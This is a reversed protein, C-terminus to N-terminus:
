RVTITLVFSRQEPPCLLAEGCLRRSASIRAMGAQRATFAVQVTGCGVGPPCTGPPAATKSPEGNQAVVDPDSSGEIQWYTSHLVLQFVEGPAAEITSGNSAEDVTRAGPLAPTACVPIILFLVVFPARLSKGSM